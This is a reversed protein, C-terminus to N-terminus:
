PFTVFDLGGREDRVIVLIFTSTDGEFEVTETTRAKPKDFNGSITYWAAEFNETRTEIMNDVTIVDYSEPTSTTVLLGDGDQVSGALIAGNALINSISPNSNKITRDSVLIRKFAKYEVGDVNFTFIIIYGVGNFRETSSKGALVDPVVFSLNPGLGTRSTFTGTPIDYNGSVAAPDFECTVNAGRSIGPDLCREFSGDITVTSGNFDSVLVNVTVNTGADVEPQDSVIGLVRFGELQEVKKFKDGSCSLCFIFLLLIKM